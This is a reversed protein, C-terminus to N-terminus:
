RARPARAVPYRPPRWGPEYGTPESLSATAREIGYLRPARLEPQGNTAIVRGNRWRFHLRLRGPRTAPGRLSPFIM